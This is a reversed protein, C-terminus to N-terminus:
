LHLVREKIEQTRGQNWFQTGIYGCTRRAVNMKNQDTNGCKPCKWVLKGAEEVIDIEGDWDCVSIPRRLYFGPLQVQVFQGPRVIASTDGELRMRYVLPTLAQNERIIFEM